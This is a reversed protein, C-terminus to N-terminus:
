QVSEPPVSVPDPDLHRDRGLDALVAISTSFAPIRVTDPAAGFLAELIPGCVRGQCPGMGARTALKAERASWGAKLAGLSVDECRCIITSEDALRLLEERPAFAAATARAFARHRDRVPFLREASAAAGAAALGAITGEILAADAGTNGTPEGAAFVRPRSTQQYRDVRVFRGELECDLLRALENSAVLGAGTCLLDCSIRTRPDAPLAFVRNAWVRTPSDSALTVQPQTGDADVRTVWTGWRYPAQLFRARYVVAQALRAPRRWLGAAFAAVRRAPAQEAVLVLRAGSRALTAAVPLLLPGTGALIVCKGTLDAGSKILAQVGGIGVVGPLTWGPFPLWREIAGTALILANADVRLHSGDREADLHDPSLAFVSAGCCVLAGSRELRSLWRGASRPLEATSRHRWIQGGPRPAADLLAVRRGSGAAAVAAAIGAPGAGVIAVDVEM